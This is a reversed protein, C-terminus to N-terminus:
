RAAAIRAEAVADAAAGALIGNRRATDLIEVVTDFIKEVQARVDTAPTGIREGAVQIIGGGNAVYDPVWTIGREGLDHEVAPHALQNNAAGCIVEATIAAVSTDTLTAGMACPAYVDLEQDIVSSAM